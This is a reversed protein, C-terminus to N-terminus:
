YAIVIERIIGLAKNIEDGVLNSYNIIFQKKNMNNDNMYYDSIASIKINRDLLMKKIQDDTLKTDFEIIFHLGSDNEIVKCIDGINDKICQLIEKRKKSYHRRMRNIHKEFYGDKIFRALIYQEFNSVTCSYFSLREYFLKVLPVPLIMYSIRITPTLSKSFTNIYIVKENNDMSFLTPVPKGEARFESDYDDEIIYRDESHLAWSLIEYRRSAPMNIGMPFHHNPCIHAIDAKSDLLGNVTVGYKDIEALHCTIDYQEYIRLLKTYGPNEIAYIRDNNLLQIILGYLYETGAGVIIQNPDVMMGRFSQLHQAIAERLERVGGTPATTMLEKEYENLVDRSVKAWVSFPFNEPDIGNDSIDYFKANSKEPIDIDFSVKKKEDIGNLLIGDIESVYYGKKPKAYIYGEGILQEYANQVTIISIGNNTAFARKSPLKEGAKLNGCIIDSKICKYIYEYLSCDVNEFDYTLM